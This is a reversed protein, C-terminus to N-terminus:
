TIQEFDFLQYTASCPKLMMDTQSWIVCKMVVREEANHSAFTIFSEYYLSSEVKLSNIM